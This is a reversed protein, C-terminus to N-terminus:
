SHKPKSFSLGASNLNKRRMKDELPVFFSIQLGARSKGWERHLIGSTRIGKFDWYIRFRKSLYTRRRRRNKLSSSSIKPHSAAIPYESVRVTPLFTDCRVVASVDQFSPPNKSLSNAKGILSSILAFSFNRFPAFHSPSFPDFSPVFVPLSISWSSWERPSENESPPKMRSSQKHALYYQM